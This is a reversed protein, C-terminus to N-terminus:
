GVVLNGVGRSRGTRENAVAGIGAKNTRGAEVTSSLCTDNVVSPCRELELMVGRLEDRRM